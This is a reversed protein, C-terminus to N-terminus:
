DAFYVYNVNALLAPKASGEVEIRVGFAVRVANPPVERVERM